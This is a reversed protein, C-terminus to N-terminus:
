LSNRDIQLCYNNNNEVIVLWNRKDSASPLFLENFGSVLSKNQFSFHSSDSDSSLQKFNIKMGVPFSSPQGKQTSTWLFYSGCGWPIYSRSNWVMRNLDFVAKSDLCLNILTWHLTKHLTKFNSVFLIVNAVNGVQWLQKHHSFSM